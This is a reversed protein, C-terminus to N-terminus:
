DIFADAIDNQKYNYQKRKEERWDVYWQRSCKRLQDKNQKNKEHPLHIIFCDHLVLFKFGAMHLETNHSGKNHFRAVFRIDFSFTSTALLCYPEYMDKWQIYYPETTTTWKWYNTPRHGENFSIVHFQRVKGERYAKIMQLRNHPIEFDIYVTEFTPIVVATKKMATHGVTKLHEKMATYMGYSSVYDIDSYFVYPTSVYKHGLSRLPNIAYSPGIKFMLHYTVNKRDRLVKSGLVYDVVGQVQSETVHIAISAPGDWNTFSRELLNLRNYDLHNVLTVDYEDNSSYGHGMLFPLERRRTEREWAFLECADITSPSEKVLPEMGASCQVMEKYRLLDGDYGQVTKCVEKLEPSKSSICSLSCNATATPNLSDKHIFESILVVKGVTHETSYRCQYVSEIAQTWVDRQSLSRIKSLNLSMAGWRTLQVVTYNHCYSVCNENCLTIVHNDHSLVVSWLEVVDISVVSTPELVIVHQVSDPLVLHLNLYLSLPAPCSDNVSSTITTCAQKLDYYHHSIGPVLWSDLMSTLVTKARSDTIFHFHLPTSRYMLVSKITWYIHRTNVLGSVVMAIHVTPCKDQINSTNLCSLPSQSLTFGEQEGLETHISPLHLGAVRQFFQMQTSHSGGYLKQWGLIQVIILIILVGLLTKKGTSQPLNMNEPPYVYYMFYLFSTPYLWVLRNFCSPVALLISLM